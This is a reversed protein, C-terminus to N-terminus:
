FRGYTGYQGVSPVISTIKGAPKYKFAGVIQVTHGENSVLTIDVLGVNTVPARLLVFSNNDYIVEAISENIFVKDLATGFSYLNKGTIVVRTGVQGLPPQVTMINSTINYHWMLDGSTLISPLGLEETVIVIQGFSEMMEDRTCVTKYVCSCCQATCNTFCLSKLPIVFNECEVFCTKNLEGGSTCNAFCVSFNQNVCNSLCSDTLFAANSNSSCDVDTCNNANGVPSCVEQTTCYPRGARVVIWSQSVIDASEITANVGALVVYTSTIDYFLNIGSINVRTEVQGIAPTVSNISAFIIDVLSQIIAGTNAIVTINSVGALGTPLTVNICTYNFLVFSSTSFRNADIGGIIVSATLNGDGLPRDGCLLVTQNATVANPVVRTIKGDTMQQWANSRIFTPGDYVNGNVTQTFNVIVSSTGTVGSSARCFITTANFFDVIAENGALLVQPLSLSGMLNNGHIVVRTGTQGSSPILMTINGPTTYNWTLNAVTYSSRETIITINANSMPDTSVGARLTVTFSSTPLDSTLLESPIGGIHVAIVTSNDGNQPLLQGTITVISHSQGSGPIVKTVLVGATFYM